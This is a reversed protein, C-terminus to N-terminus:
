GRKKLYFIIVLGFVALGIGGLILRDRQQQAYVPNGLLATSAATGGIYKSGLNVNTELFQNTREGEAYTTM